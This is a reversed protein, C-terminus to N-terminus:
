AAEKRIEDMVDKTLHPSELDIVQPNTFTQAPELDLSVLDSVATTGIYRWGDEVPNLLEINKYRFGPPIQEPNM